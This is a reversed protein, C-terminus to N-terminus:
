QRDMKGAGRNQAVFASMSQMFASPVLMIFVCVKEAVGIGRFIGGILNYAVIVIAAGGCIRVYTVTLDFAEKPAHMILTLNEAAFLLIVTMAIGLLMFLLLGSGVIEGGEKEKKAGIKQGLFITMGMCISSIINTIIMMIQSGTSVASVDASGAFKGVILLDVAGYMAQLFLAMLVPGAFKLLPTVIKGNTFDIRKEM